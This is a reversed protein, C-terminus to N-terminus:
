QGEYEPLGGFVGSLYMKEINQAQRPREESVKHIRSGNEDNFSVIVEQDPRLLSNTLLNTSHTVIFIQSNRSNDMFFKILLQELQNHFGSSFEDIMLMSGNSVAHFFVPLLRLLNRNGLSEMLFPIPNDIGKRKFFIDKEETNQITLTKGISEKTYEITQGFNRKDFFENVQDVGTKDLYEKINLQKKSPNIIYNLHANIYVSNLLFEFWLRLTENGRFKTNFYIERLILSNNEIDEFIENETVRSKASNGMREILIDNDVVLTESLYEKEVDYEINYTILSEDILFEYELLMLNENSFLCRDNDLDLLKDMFLMELIKRIALLINTKGSANSGIFVLGKLTDDYINDGSLFKINSPNLDVITEEKFSKFNKVRVKRLM